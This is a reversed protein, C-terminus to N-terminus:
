GVGDLQEPLKENARATRERVEDDRRKATEGTTYALVRKRAYSRFKYTNRVHVGELKEQARLKHLKRTLRLAKVNVRAATGIYSRM